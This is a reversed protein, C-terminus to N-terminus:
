PHRVWADPLVALLVGDDLAVRATDDLFENSV